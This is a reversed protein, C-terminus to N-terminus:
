DIMVTWEASASPRFRRTSIWASLLGLLDDAGAPAIQMRAKNATPLKLLAPHLRKYM